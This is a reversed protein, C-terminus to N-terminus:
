HSACPICPDLLRIGFESGVKKMLPLNFMTPTIINYKEVRGEEDLWVKHVLIGRPAEYVGLGRGKRLIFGETRFPATPDIEAFIEDIRNFAFRIEEMRAIQLGIISQDSFSRYTKLRARPGVEVFEEGYLAIMSSSDKTAENQFIEHYFATKIKEVDITYRDGYFFHSALYKFNLQIQKGKLAMETWKREDLEIERLENFLKEAEKLRERNREIIRDDWNKTIGGVILRNPHTSAGVIEQMIKNVIELTDLTLTIVEKRFKQQLLDKLILLNHLLHSQVRNLLGVAERGILGNRPPYIGLADEFAECSAIAHSAHCVGCIRMVAEIVFLPHKGEVIKEFGRVASTPLFFLDGDKIVVKGEGFIRIVEKGM